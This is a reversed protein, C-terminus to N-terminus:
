LLSVCAWMCLSNTTFVDNLYSEYIAQNLLKVETKDSEKNWWIQTTRVIAANVHPFPTVWLFEIGVSTMSLKGFDCLYVEIVLSVLYACISPCTYM